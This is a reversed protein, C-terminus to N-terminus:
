LIFLWFLWVEILHDRLHKKFGKLSSNIAFYSFRNWLKTGRFRISFQDRSTLFKPIHLASSQRTTYSHVLSNAKFYTHFHVPIKGEPSYIQYLFVCTQFINIDYALNYSNSIESIFRYYQLAQSSTHKWHAPHAKDAHLLRTWLFKKQGHKNNNNEM